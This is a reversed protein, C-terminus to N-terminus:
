VDNGDNMRVFVGQMALSTLDLGLLKLGSYIALSGDRHMPTCLHYTKIVSSIANILFAPCVVAQCIRQRCNCQIQSTLYLRETACLALLM